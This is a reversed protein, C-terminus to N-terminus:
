NQVGDKHPDLDIRGRQRPGGEGLLNWEKVTANFRDRQEADSEAYRKAATKIRDAATLYRATSKQFFSEVEGRLGILATDAAIPVVGRGALQGDAYSVTAINKLLGSYIEAVDYCHQAIEMVLNVDVAYRGSAPPDSDDGDPSHQTVDYLELLTRDVGAIREQIATVVKLYDAEAHDLESGLTRVAGDLHSFFTSLAPFRFNDKVEETHSLVFDVLTLATGVGSPLSKGLAKVVTEAVGWVESVANVKHKILQIDTPPPPATEFLEKTAQDILRLNNNRAANITTARLAYCNALWRVLVRQNKLAPGVTSLFGGKLSNAALGTWGAMWARNNNDDSTIALKDVLGNLAHDGVSDATDMADNIAVLSTRAEELSSLDPGGALDPISNALHERQQWAWDGVQTFAGSAHCEVYAQRSTDWGDCTGPRKAPTGDDVAWAVIPCTRLHIMSQVPIPRLASPAGDIQVTGHQLALGADHLWRRELTQWYGNLAASLLSSYQSDGLYGSNM